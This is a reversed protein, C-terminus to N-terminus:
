DKKRKWIPGWFKRPCEEISVLVKAEVVCGCEECIGDNNSPCIECHKKRKDADDISIILDYGSLNALLARRLFQLFAIARKFNKWM